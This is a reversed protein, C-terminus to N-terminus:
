YFGGKIGLRKRVKDNQSRLIARFNKKKDTSMSLVENCILPHCVMAPMYSDFRIYENLQIDYQTFSIKNSSM